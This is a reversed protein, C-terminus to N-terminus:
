TIMEFETVTLTNPLVLIMKKFPFRVEEEIKESHHITLQYEYILQDLEQSCQITDESTYGYKRASNIMKERKEQIHLLIEKCNEAM